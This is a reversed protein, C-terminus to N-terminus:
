DGRGRWRLAHLSVSPAPADDEGTLLVRGGDIAAVEYIPMGGPETSLLDGVKPPGATYDSLIWDIARHPAM